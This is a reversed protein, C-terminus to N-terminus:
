VREHRSKEAEKLINIKENEFQQLLIYIKPMDIKTHKLEHEILKGIHPISDIKIDSFTKHHKKKLHEWRPFHLEVRILHAKLEELNDIHHQLRKKYADEATHDTLAKKKQELHAVLHNIEEIEHAILDLEEELMLKTYRRDQHKKAHHYTKESSGLIKAIEHEHSKLKTFRTYWGGESYHALKHYGIESIVYRIARDRIKASSLKGLATKAMDFYQNQNKIRDFSFEGAAVSTKARNAFAHYVYIESAIFLARQKRINKVDVGNTITIIKGIKGQSVQARDPLAFEYLKTNGSAAAKLSIQEPYVTIRTLGSAPGLKAYIKKLFFNIEHALALKYHERQEKKMFGYITTLLPRMPDAEIMNRLLAAV